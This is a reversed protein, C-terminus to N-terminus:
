KKLAKKRLIIKRIFNLYISFLLVVIFVVLTAVEALQENIDLGLLRVFIYKIYSYPLDNSGLKRLVKWHWETFLCFGFGYFIGLGFWSLGTLTLTIFNAMRTKKWAWGIINFLTLVTHFILFFYDLFHYWFM